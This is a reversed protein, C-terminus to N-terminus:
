CAASLYPNNVTTHIPTAPTLQKLAGEFEDCWALVERQEDNEEHPSAKIFPLVKRVVGRIKESRQRAVMEKPYHPHVGNCATRMMAIPERLCSVLDEGLLFGKQHLITIDKLMDAGALWRMAERGEGQSIRSLLYVNGCLQIKHLVDFLAAGAEELSPDDHPIGSVSDHKAKISADFMAMTRDLGRAIDECFEPDRQDSNNRWVDLVGGNNRLCNDGNSYLAYDGGWRWRHLHSDNLSLALSGEINANKSYRMSDGTEKNKIGDNELDHWVALRVAQDEVPLKSVAKEEAGLYTTLFRM